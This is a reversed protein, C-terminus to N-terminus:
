KIDVNHAIIAKRYLCNKNLLEYSAKSDCARFACM